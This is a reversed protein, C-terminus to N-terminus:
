YIVIPKVFMGTDYKIQHIDVDESTQGDAVLLYVSPIALFMVVRVYVAYRYKCPKSTRILMNNAM